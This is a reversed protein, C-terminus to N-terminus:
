VRKDSGWPKEKRKRMAYGTVSLGIGALVMFYIEPEPIAAAVNLRTVFDPLDGFANFNNGSGNIEIAYEHAPLNNAVVLQTIAEPFPNVPIINTGDAVDAGEITVLRM